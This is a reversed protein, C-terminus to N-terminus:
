STYMCFFFDYKINYKKIGIFNVQLEKGCEIVEFKVEDDDIVELVKIISYLSVELYDKIIGKPSNNSIMMDEMNKNALDKDMVSLDNNAM